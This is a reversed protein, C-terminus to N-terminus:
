QPYENIFPTETFMNNIASDRAKEYLILANNVENTDRREHRLIRYILWLKFVDIFSFPVKMDTETTTTTWSGSAISRIGKIQIRWVWVENTRPDPAIFISGDREYYIPELNSQNELYNNWNAIEYDMASRCPIYKKLGNVWYTNSNYTVSVNEIHKAWVNVSSVLPKTYEDQLSVTDSLWIDWNGNAKRLYVANDWCDQAISSLHKLWLTNGSKYEPTAGSESYADTLIDNVTILEM